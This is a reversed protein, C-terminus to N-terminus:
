KRKSWFCSGGKKISDFYPNNFIDKVIQHLEDDFTVFCNPLLIEDNGMGGLLYSALLYQENYYRDDWWSWYDYPLFIDHIGWIIEKPLIPLIETFFVTVDSNQFSRHSGDVFLISNSPLNKFITLNMDETRIRHIEDCLNDINARPTPDISIIKTRLNNDSISQRVFKTSNGSGIEIYVEPNNIAVLGYLSLSDLGNIWGNRWCPAKPRKKDGIIVINNLQNKFQEFSKLVNTYTIRNDATNIIKELYQNKGRDKPTFNYDLKISMAAM